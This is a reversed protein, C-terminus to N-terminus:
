PNQDGYGYVSFTISSPYKSGYYIRNKVSIFDELKAEYINIFKNPNVDFFPFMSNQIQLMIRHGRKFTHLIDQLKITIKTIKEPIFPEPKSLNNRFKGRMMEYRVLRQYGGMEVDDGNDTEQEAYDPYVDILKVVWDGDTGTTSVFLDIYIPGAITINEGLVETELSIVDPRVYAFRQDAIMFEKIYMNRSDHFKSYYPVPRKPDVCYEVYGNTTKNNDFSLKNGENLYMYKTLVNKPEWTNFKCWKNVGTDFVIAEYNPKVGKNKLYYNFFPYEIEKEYYESTKSGFYFDGLWDGPSRSWAGHTWPGLIIRHENIKNNNEITKYINIPGYLDEADYFGGVILVAPSTSKLHPLINRTKWYDDYTNHKIVDNWFSIKNNYYFKNINSLPLLKTFFTYMDPSDYKLRQPWETTLSDRAVGFGSFFNFVMSLSLAGNHHMDDGIFWDAIAAQPSVAKLAPHSNILGMASYFGPYSIGYMGVRGNNNPINNILWEITDYTDSSEDIDSNNRKNSNFPRMDVFEGESMFRGRVDQLVFIYKDEIIHKNFFDERFSNSDYPAISYPTRMLIIPYNVTTDKPSYVITFLKIGDRMEIKYIHKNYNISLYGNGAFIFSNFIFMIIYYLSKNLM